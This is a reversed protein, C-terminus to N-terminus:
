PRPYKPDLVTLGEMVEHAEQLMRQAKDDLRRIDAAHYDAAVRRDKMRQGTAALQKCALDPTRRYQDWCWQHYREGKPKRGATMEARAFALNFVCYYARSIATRKSADDNNAALVEALSLFNKWDFPM